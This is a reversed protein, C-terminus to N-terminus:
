VDGKQQGNKCYEMTCEVDADQSRIACGRPLLVVSISAIACYGGHGADQYTCAEFTNVAFTITLIVEGARNM